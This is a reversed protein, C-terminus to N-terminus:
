GEHQEPRNHGATSSNNAKGSVADLQGDSLATPDAAAPLPLAVAMTVASAFAMTIIKTKM